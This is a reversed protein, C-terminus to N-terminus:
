RGLFYLDEGRVQAEAREARWAEYGDGFPIPRQAFDFLAEYFYPAERAEGLTTCLRARVAAGGLDFSAAHRLVLSELAAPDVPDQLRGWTMFFRTANSDLEVAVAVLDEM